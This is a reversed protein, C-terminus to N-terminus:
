GDTLELRRKSDRDILDDWVGNGGPQARIIDEDHQASPGYLGSSNLQAISEAAAIEQRLRRVAIRAIQSQRSPPPAVAPTIKSARSAVGAPVGEQPSADADEEGTPVKFLARLFYKEVYSMGAGFAQPGTAQVMITRHIPGYEAGSEHFLMLEYAATIWVAAKVQGQDNSTERRETIISTEDTVVFLGEAAMLQGIEAYFQDVSVYRFRAFKNEQDKGLSRVQKKVAVIAKGIEPPMRPRPIIIEGTGVAIESM